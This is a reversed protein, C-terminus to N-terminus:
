QQRHRDVFVATTRAPVLFRPGDYRATRVVPDSSRTLVPHLEFAQGGSPYAFAVPERGANFLAVIEAYDEDIAGDEDELSMVILGPIQAPGTNHFRLREYIEEASRLRFLASSNRIALLERFLEASHAVDAPSPLLAPDALRPQMLPWQAENQSAIPLGKGWNTKRATWDIANFWDGSNFSNRDMSKSRLLDQGAHVFPIGQALLALSNSLHQIRVRDAMSTSIPAKLQITDFLTENDHAEVYAIHESPDATFGAPQGFYDVEKAAVPVGMANVFRFDALNGALGIRLWDTLQLLLTDADDQDYANPDYGLGNVFGQDRVDSFPTGGRAGDRLRDNFTGIGTGAMNAQTAQVFRAGDVVEGFNWGEGYLYISRGDVGDAEITLADLAARVEMLVSKPHHGMLDFRFGDIKYDRAWTVLSDIMLKAMMAHEAATNECCTSQEVAGTPGLRHYYGPVIRDLVSKEAQGSAATHNYVVDMVVRLGAENLSQVMRRYELIRTTGNADTAYSGEPVTYHWPDYGWNFGDADATAAVAAQQEHADAPYGSLTAFSPQRWLRRDEEISAIDFTPLLHLHTLGAGALAGLHQMGDSESASFAAYTGRHKEPVTGDIVSFDRVHLEYIVIDEFAALPPKELEDWGPPELVPNGLDVLQSRRSNMSLGLSYPDTVENRQIRGTAPVYVEVEFLYYRDKWDPAGHIMWTGTAPDPKMPFSDADTTGVDDYLLLTVGLATPAWLTITPVDDAFVPGLDGGYTYLDDLVGPLQLGTADLLTGDPASVSVVVQGKLLSPVRALDADDLLLASYGALPPFREIVVAPLGAPDLRLALSGDAGSIKNAEISLGGRAAYHLVYRDGAGGANWAIVSNRVWHASAQGTNGAPIHAIGDPEASSPCGSLGISVAFLSFYQFRM